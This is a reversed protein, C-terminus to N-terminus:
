VYPYWMKKQPPEQSVTCIFEVDSSSDDCVVRNEEASENGTLKRKKSEAAASVAVATANGAVESLATVAASGAVVKLVSDSATCTHGKRVQGCKSCLQPRRSKCVAGTGAPAAEAVGDDSAGNGDSAHAIAALTAPTPAAADHESDDVSVVDVTRLGSQQLRDEDAETAPVATSSAPASATVTATCVHGKRLQGCRLCTPQKRPKKSAAGGVDDVSPLAAAASLSPAEAEVMVALPVQSPASPISASAVQVTVRAPGAQAADSVGAVSPAGVGGASPIGVQVGSVSPIGVHVGAVSPAGVGAPRPIGVGGTAASPVGVVSPAPAAGAASVFAVDLECQEVGVVGTYPAVKGRWTLWGCLKVLATHRKNYVGLDKDFQTSLKVVEIYADAGRGGASFAAALHTSVIRYRHAAGQLPKKQKVCGEM